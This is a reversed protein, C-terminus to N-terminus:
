TYSGFILVVPRQGSSGGITVGAGDALRNLMLEPVTDGVKLRDEDLYGVEELFSIVEPPIDPPLNM